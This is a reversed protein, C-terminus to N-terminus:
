LYKEFRNNKKTTEDFKSPNFDMGLIYKKGIARERSLEVPVILM